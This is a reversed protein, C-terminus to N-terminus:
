EISVLLFVLTCVAYFSFWKCNCKPRQVVVNPDLITQRPAYAWRILISEARPNKTVERGATALSFKWDIIQGKYAGRLTPGGHLKADRAWVGSTGPNLTM